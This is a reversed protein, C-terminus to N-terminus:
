KLFIRSFVFLFDKKKRVLSSEDAMNRCHKDCWGEILYGM